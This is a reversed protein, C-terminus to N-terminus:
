EGFEELYHRIRHCRCCRLVCKDLEKKLHRWLFMYSGSIKFSKAAPDNHDFDFAVWHGQFKCDVCQGGLYEVARQKVEKSKTKKVCAPCKIRQDQGSAHSFAKGCDCILPSKKRAM